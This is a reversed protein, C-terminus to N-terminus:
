PYESLGCHWGLRKFLDYDERMLPTTPMEWAYDRLITWFDDMTEVPICLSRGLFIAIPQPLVSPAVAPNSENIPQPQLIDCKFAFLPLLEM